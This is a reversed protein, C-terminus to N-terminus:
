PKQGERAIWWDRVVAAIVVGAALGLARVVAWGVAHEIKHLLGSRKAKEDKDLENKTTMAAM